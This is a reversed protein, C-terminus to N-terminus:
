KSPSSRSGRKYADEWITILRYGETRLAAERDITRQYLDGMTAHAQPNVVSAEYLAPNGHWYNGYFEYVTKGDDSLGDVKFHKGGAEIWVERHTVGQEDLWRDAIKSKRFQYGGRGGKLSERGYRRVLTETAREM